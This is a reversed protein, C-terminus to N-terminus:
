RLWSEPGKSLRKDPDIVTLVPGDKGNWHWLVIRRGGHSVFSPYIVGDLGKKKLRAAILHISPIRGADL